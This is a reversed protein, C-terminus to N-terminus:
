LKLEDIIVEYNRRNDPQIMVEINDGVNYQPMDRRKESKFVRDVGNINAVCIIQREDYEVEAIVNIKQITAMIHKTRQARLKDKNKEIVSYKSNLILFVIKMFIFVAIYLLIPIISRSFLSMIIVVIKISIKNYHYFFEEETIEDELITNM